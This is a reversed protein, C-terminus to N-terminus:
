VRTFPDPAVLTRMVGPITQQIRAREDPTLHALAAPEAELYAMFREAEGRDEVAAWVWRHLDSFTLPAPTPM